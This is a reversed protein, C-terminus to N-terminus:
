HGVLTLISNDFYILNITIKVINVIDITHINYMISSFMDLVTFTSKAMHSKASNQNTIQVFLLFIKQISFKFYFRLLSKYIICFWNRFAIPKKESRLYTFIRLRIVCNYNQGLFDFLSKFSISNSDHFVNKTEPKISRYYSFIRLANIDIKNRIRM